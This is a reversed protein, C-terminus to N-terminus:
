NHFFFPSAPIPSLRVSWTGEICQAALRVANQQSTACNTGDVESSCRLIGLVLNHSVLCAHGSDSNTIQDVMEYLDVDVGARLIGGLSSVEYCALVDFLRLAFMLMVDFLYLTLALALEVGDNDRL